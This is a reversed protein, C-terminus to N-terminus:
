KNKKQTKRKKAKDNEFLNYIETNEEQVIRKKLENIEEKIIKEKIDKDSKEQKEKKSKKNPENKFQMNQKQRLGKKRGNLSIICILSLFLGIGFTAIVYLYTKNQEKLYDIYESDYVSFTNNQSDYSYFAEEGTEINKGYIVYFRSSKNFNFASYEKDNIKISTKDMGKFDGDYNLSIIRINKSSLEEYRTYKNDKFIYNEIIGEANKLGVLIYNIYKNVCAPVPINEIVQETEEFSDPCNFDNRLKVVTYNSGAINVNIPNEDIVNITLNYTKENGNEAKVVISTKNIGAIVNINGVGKVSAYKSNAEGLVKISNTGEPVNVSYETIDKSFNPTIEYGEISLSKLNNDTSKERPLSVTIKISKAALSAPNGSSDSVGSPTVSITSTGVSLASLTITYSNNEIWVRDESISVVSENSSRINFRGTVDSGKITLKTTNGKSLSKTGATITFSAAYVNGIEIFMIAILVIIKLVNKKM